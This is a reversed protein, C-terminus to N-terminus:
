NFTVTGPRALQTQAIVIDVLGGNVTITTTSNVGAYHEILSAVDAYHITVGVGAAQIFATIATTLQTQLTALPTGVAATLGTVTVNIPVNTPRAMDFEAGAARVADVATQISNLTSQPIAGSGDDAIVTFGAPYATGDFHHYEYLQYSLGSQVALIAAAIADETGKALAAIYRVFNVKVTADTDADAGNNTGNVNTVSTFGVIGTVIKQVTNPQVNGLAGAQTCEAWAVMTPQGDPCTYQNNIADWSTLTGTTDPVLTFQVNGVTTQVTPNNALPVSVIGATVNRTFTVQVKSAKAPNRAYGWDSVFTDVDVGVATALRMAQQVQLVQGQITLDNGGVAEAFARLVSGVESDTLQPAYTQVTNIFATVWQDLTYTTLSM